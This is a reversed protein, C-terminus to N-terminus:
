ENADESNLSLNDLLRVPTVGDVFMGAVLLRGGNVDGPPLALLDGERRLEIYDVACRPETAL